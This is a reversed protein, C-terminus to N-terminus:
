PGYYDKRFPPTLPRLLLEGSYQGVLLCVNAAAVGQDLPHGQQIASEEPEVGQRPIEFPAKGSQRFLRAVGGHERLTM